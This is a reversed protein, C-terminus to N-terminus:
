FKRVKLARIREASICCLGKTGMSSRAARLRKLSGAMPGMSIRDVCSSSGAEALTVSEAAALECLMFGVAGGGCLGCEAGVKANTGCLLELM